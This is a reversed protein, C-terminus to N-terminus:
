PALLPFWESDLKDGPNLQAVARNHQDTVPHNKGSYQTGSEMYITVHAIRWDDTENGFARHACTGSHFTADGAKLPLCICPEYELQPAKSFLSRSDHLNQSELDTLEHSGPIFSMCGKQAPTDQLAIWVSITKPNGSFPWYPRDQHWETPLGTNPAKSLLHDHWLRMPVGTLQRAIAAIGSCLTLARLIENKQWVNVQQALRNEYPNGNRSELPAVREGEKRFALACDRTLLSPVKIFGNERYSRISEDGLFTTGMVVEPLTPIMDSHSKLHLIM